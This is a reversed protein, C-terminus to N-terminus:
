VKLVKKTQLEIESELDIINNKFKLRRKRNKLLLLCYDTFKEFENTASLHLNNEFPMGNLAYETCVVPKLYSM